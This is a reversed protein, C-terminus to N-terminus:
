TNAPRSKHLIYLTITLIYLFALSGIALSFFGAFSQNDQILTPLSSIFNSTFAHYINTLFLHILFVLFAIFICAPTITNALKLAFHPNPKRYIISRTLASILAIIQIAPYACLIIIIAVIYTDFFFDNYFGHHPIYYGYKIMGYKGPTTLFSLSLEDALYYLFSCFLTLPLIAFLTLRALQHHKPNPSQTKIQLALTKPKLLFLYILIFPAILKQKLTTARTYPDDLRRNPSLSNLTLHGCEPCNVELNQDDISKEPTFIPYNCNECTAPWYSQPKFYLSKQTAFARLLTLSLFTLLICFNMGLINGLSNYFHYESTSIYARRQNTEKRYWLSQSYSDYDKGSIGDGFANAKVVDYPSPNQQRWQQMHQKSAYDSFTDTLFMGVPFLSTFLFLLPTLLCLRRLSTVYASRFTQHLSAARPTLLFSLILLVPLYAIAIVFIPPILTTAHPTFYWNTIQSFNTQATNFDTLNSNDSLLTILPFTPLVFLLAFPIALYLPLNRSRTFILFPFLPALLLTFLHPLQRPNKPPTFSATTSSSQTPTQTTM